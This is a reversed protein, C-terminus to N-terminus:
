YRWRFMARRCYFYEPLCYYIGWCSMVPERDYYYHNITDSCDATTLDDIRAFQEELSLHRGVLLVQEGIQQASKQAGDSGFLLKSKLLNKGVEVQHGELRMCYKCWESQMRTMFYFSEERDAGMSFQLYFGMLGTDSYSALFPRVEHLSGKGLQSAQREYLQRIGWNSVLDHQFRDYSGFLNLLVQLPVNDAGAAGCTEWGLAVHQCYPEAPAGCSVKVHGGVYRKGTAPAGKNEMGGFAKEAAGQIATTDVGGTAVLVAGAANNLNADRFTGIDAATLGSKVLDGAGYQALGLGSGATEDTTDYCSRHMNALVVSQLDNEFDKMVEIAGPRAASVAADDLKAQTAVEGLLAVAAPADEKQCYISMSQTERGSNLELRGGIAALASRLQEASKQQTGKWLAQQMLHAAGNNNRTEFRSGSRTHLQVCASGAGSNAQTAVRFGNQLTTVEVPAQRSIFNTVFDKGASLIKPRKPMMIASLSASM